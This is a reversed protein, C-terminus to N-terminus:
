QLRSALGAPSSLEVEPQKNQHCQTWSQGGDEQGIMLWMTAIGYITVPSGIRTM